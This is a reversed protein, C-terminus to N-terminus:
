GALLFINVSRKALQAIFVNNRFVNLIDQKKFVKFANKEQYAFMLPANWEMMRWVNHSQQFM